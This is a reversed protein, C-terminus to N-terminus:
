GTAVATSARARHRGHRVLRHALDYAPHTDPPDGLEGPDGRRRHRAGQALAGGDRVVGAFADAPRRGGEAVGEGDPRQRDGHEGAERGAPEEGLGDGPHLAHQGRGPVDGLEVVEAVRVRPRVEERRQRHAPAGVPQDDDGRRDVGGLGRRQVRQADRDDHEAPVHGSPRPDADVVAGSGAGGDPVQEPEAVAADRQHREVGVLGVAAGRRGVPAVAPGVRVGLGPPGAARDDGGPGPHGVAVGRGGLQEGERHHRGRHERHGVLEGDAHQAGQATGAHRHRALHRHDPEVVM